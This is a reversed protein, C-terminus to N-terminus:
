SGARVTPSLAHRSRAIAALGGVVAGCGPTVQPLCRQVPRAAAALYTTPAALPQDDVVLEPDPSVRVPLPEDSEAGGAVVIDLCKGLSAPM